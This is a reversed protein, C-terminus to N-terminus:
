RPVAASRSYKRTLRLPFLYQCTLYLFMFPFHLKFLIPVNGITLRLWAISFSSFNRDSSLFTSADLLFSTLSLFYISIESISFQSGFLFLSHVSFVYSLAIL